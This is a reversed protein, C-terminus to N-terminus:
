YLAVAQMCPSANLSCALLTVSQSSSPSSTSFPLVSPDDAIPSPHCVTIESVDSSSLVPEPEKSSEIRDVEQEPVDQVQFLSVTSSFVICYQVTFYVFLICTHSLTRLVHVLKYSQVLFAYECRQFKVVELNM